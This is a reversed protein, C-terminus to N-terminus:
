MYMHSIRPRSNQDERRQEDILATADAVTVGVPDIPAPRSKIQLAYLIQIFFTPPPVRVKKLAARSGLRDLIRVQKAPANGPLERSQSIVAEIIGSDFTCGHFRGLDRSRIQLIGKLDAGKPEPVLLTTFRRSFASDQLVQEVEKDTTCGIMRFKGRALAPKLIDVLNLGSRFGTSVLSHTEDVFIIINGAMEVDEILREVRQEFQGVFSAGASFTATSLAIIRTGKLPDPVNNLAIKQALKEVLATKGTGAPGVLLVNATEKQLLVEEMKGILDDRGETPSLKGMKAKQTLDIGPESLKIKSGMGLRQVQLSLYAGVLAGLMEIVKVGVEAILRNRVNSIDGVSSDDSSTTSGRSFGRILSSM